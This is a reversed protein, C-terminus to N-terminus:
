DLSIDIIKEIIPQFKEADSGSGQIFSNILELKDSTALQTYLAYTGPYNDFMLKEFTKARTDTRSTVDGTPTSPLAAPAAPQSVTTNTTQPQPTPQPAPASSTGGSTSRTSSAEAELQDLYDDQAYVSASGILLSPFLCWLYIKKVEIGGWKCM